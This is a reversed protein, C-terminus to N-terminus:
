RGEQHVVDFHRFVLAVRSPWERRKGLRHEQLHVDLTDLDSEGIRATTLIESGCYRCLLKLTTSM